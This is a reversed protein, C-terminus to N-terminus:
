TPLERENCASYKNITKFNNVNLLPVAHVRNFLMGFWCLNSLLTYNKFLFKILPIGSTCALFTLFKM